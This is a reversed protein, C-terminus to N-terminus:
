CLYDRICMQTSLTAYSKICLTQSICTVIYGSFVLREAVLGMAGCNFFVNAADIKVCRGCQTLLRVCM